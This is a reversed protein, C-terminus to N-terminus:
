MVGGEDNNIWTDITGFTSLCVDAAYQVQDVEGLDALAYATAYNKIRMEDQIKQLENEHRAVMFVKAGQAVAMMVTALGIASTAGAIFIVQQNLPKQKVSM